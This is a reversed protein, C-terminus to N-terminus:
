LMSNLANDLHRNFVCVCAQPMPWRELFGTETNSWGRSLSISGPMWDLGGRICRSGDRCMTDSSVLSFLEARGEGSARGLFSYLAM